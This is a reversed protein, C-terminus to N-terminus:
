LGLNKAAIVFWDKNALKRPAITFTAVKGGTYATTTGDQASTDAPKIVVTAKGKNVNSVFEVEYADAPVTKKDVEVKIYCNGDEQKVSSDLKIPEIANGTYSLKSTAKTATGEYFTVKAKSLDAEKSGKKWVTYSGTLTKDKDTNKYNSKASPEIKVYVTKSSETGFKLKNNKDMDKSM